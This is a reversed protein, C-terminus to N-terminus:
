SSHRHFGPHANEQRHCGPHNRDPDGKGRNSAGVSLVLKGFVGGEEMQAYAEAIERFPYIKHVIPRLRGDELRRSAFALFDAVLGAKEARTRARLVSGVIQLRRKLVDALDIEARAGALVGVLVLRGGEKLAKLHTGVGSGGALDVILDVGQGDTADRVANPFWGDLELCTDAGLERLKELRELRRGAVLVQAAGLERALQVAFIGVGSAAATILVSQGERLGGEHALNTWSSIAVEPLAAAEEFGLGAPIRMLQGVPAAVKEGHGGGGLLAMVRDGVRWGNVEVGLEDIEGACELGPVESEGPPPPYLGRIQLLDARNMATARVGVLVEGRGPRPDAIEGLQPVPSGLKTDASQLLVALM